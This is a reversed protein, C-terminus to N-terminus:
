ATLGDLLPTLCAAYEETTWGRQITPKAYAESSMPLWIANM